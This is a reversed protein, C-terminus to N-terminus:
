HAGLEDRKGGDLFHWGEIQKYARDVQLERADVKKPHPQRYDPQHDCLTRDIRLM